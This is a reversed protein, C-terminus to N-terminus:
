KKLGAAWNRILTLPEPFRADPFIPILFRQGDLSVDYRTFTNFSGIPGVVARVQGVEAEGREFAVEAAMLRQDSGRKTFINM